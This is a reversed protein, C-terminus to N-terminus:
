ETLICGDQLTIRRDSVMELRKLNHDTMLISMGANATKRLIAAMDEADDETLGAFPEDLLLINPEQALARAVSIQKKRKLNLYQCPTAAYPLLHFLDLWALAARENEPRGLALASLPTSAERLTPNQFVRGIGAQARRWAPWSAIDQDDLRIRGRDPYSRGALLDILSTKGSGNLGSVGLIEGPSLTLSIGDVAKIGEYSKYLKSAELYKGPPRSTIHSLQVPAQPLIPSSARHSQKICAALGEPFRIIALLLALATLLPSLIDFGRTIETLVLYVVPGILAGLFSRRGGLVTMILSALMWELDLSSPTIVSDLQAIWSGALGAHAGGMIIAYTRWQHPNIGLTEASHPDERVANWVALMRPGMIVAGLGLILATLVILCASSVYISEALPPIGFRGNAGGTLKGAHIAGLRILEAFALSALAFGHGSIRCAMFAMPLSAVIGGALGALMAFLSSAQFDLLVIAAAYAGIGLIAGHAISLIGAYGFIIQYGRVLLTQIAILAALRSSYPDIFTVILGLFLWIGLGILISPEIIAQKTM